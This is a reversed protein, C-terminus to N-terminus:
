LPDENHIAYQLLQLSKEYRDITTGGDPAFNIKESNLMGCGANRDTGFSSFTKATFGMNKAVNLLSIAIENSLEKSSDVVSTRNLGVLDIKFVDKDLQSLIESLTKKTLSRPPIQAENARKIPVYDQFMMIGIGIKNDIDYKDVTLKHFEACLELFKKYGFQFEIPMFNERNITSHLSFHLSLPNSYYGNKIDTMMPYMFDYIGSTSIVYRYIKQQIASMAIDTLKIARRIAPYNYGPEGQGMFAFERRHSRVEPFSPCESDYSAMFINQLAIEESTLFGKFQRAGTECFRCQLNQSSLICGFSVSSTYASIEDDLKALKQDPNIEYLRRNFALSEILDGNKKWYYKIGEKGREGLLTHGDLMFEMKLPEYIHHKTFSTLLDFEEPERIPSVSALEISKTIDDRFGWKTSDQHWEYFDINARKKADIRGVSFATKYNTGHTDSLCGVTIQTIGTGCNESWLNHEHGSLWLKIGKDSFLNQVLKWEEDELYTYGHHSLVIIPNNNDISKLEQDLYSLGLRLNRRDGDKEKGATLSSNLLLLNCCDLQIAKHVRDNESLRFKNNVKSEVEKFFAFDNQLLNLIESDLTGQNPDYFSKNGLSDIIATRPKNRNVDHNGPLLYINEKEVSVASAISLIYNAVENADGADTRAFRYDGTLFLANVNGISENLYDPLKEKAKSITHGESPIFHLDSLHLWKFM